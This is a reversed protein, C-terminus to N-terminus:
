TLHPEALGRRRRRHWVYSDAGRSRVCASECHGTERRFLVGDGLPERDKYRMLMDIHDPGRPKVM